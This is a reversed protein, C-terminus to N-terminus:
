KRLRMQEDMFAVIERMCKADFVTGTKNGPVRDHKVFELHKMM